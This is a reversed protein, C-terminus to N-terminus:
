QIGWIQLLGEGTGSAFYRSDPSFENSFSRSKLTVLRKGDPCSWIRVLDAESTAFVTGDPSFKIKYVLDPHTTGVHVISGDRVRFINLKGTVLYEGDPSFALEYVPEDELKYLMKAEAVSFVSLGDTSGIALIEKDPTVAAAHIAGIEVPYRKIVAGTTINILEVRFDNMNDNVTVFAEESNLFDFIKRGRKLPITKVLEGTNWDWLNLGNEDGSALLGSYALFVGEIRAEQSGLKYRVSGNQTRRIKILFDGSISAIMSSDPSFVLDDVYSSYGDRIRLQSGDEVSWQRLTNDLAISTLIKGDPSFDIDWVSLGHGSIKRAITWNSTDWLLISKDWSGSALYKEDPSFRLSTIHDSHGRLTRITKYSSMDWVLMEEDANSILYKGDPSLAIDNLNQPGNLRAIRESKEVDWLDIVGYSSATILQKGDPTFLATVVSMDGKFTDVVERKEIDIVHFGYLGSSGIVLFKGGPSFVITDVNYTFERLSWKLDMGPYEWLWLTGDATGSALLKGDPSFAIAYVREDSPIFQIQELTDAEYLYIGISSSLALEKGDPSYAVREPAGDGWQAFLSLKAANDVSIPRAGAPLDTGVSVPGRTPTITATAIITATNTPAPTPSQTQVDAPPEATANGPSGVTLCAGLFLLAGLYVAPLFIREASKRV